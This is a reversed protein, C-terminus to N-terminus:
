VVPPTTAPDGPRKKARVLRGPGWILAVVMAVILLLDFSVRRGTSTTWYPVVAGSINGTSSM